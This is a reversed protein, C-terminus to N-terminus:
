GGLWHKFSKVKDRSVLTDTKFEPALGLKLRGNFHNHIDVVSKVNVIMARNIRFFSKPDLEAELSNLTADLIYSRGGGNVLFTLSDESYFYSVEEAMLFTFKDRIKVLFRERFVQTTNKADVLESLFSWSKKTWIDKVKQIKRFAKKLDELDIPKLLFARISYEHYATTFIVPVEIEIQDFISFSLGDALQIDMFIIDPSDNERLWNVSSEVSDLNALMNMDTDIENLLSKLREAAHHEDEIILINV